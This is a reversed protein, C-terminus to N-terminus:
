VGRSDLLLEDIAWEIVINLDEAFINVPHGCHNRGAADICLDHSFPYDKALNSLPYDCPWGFSLVTAGSYGSIHLSVAKHFTRGTTDYAPINMM